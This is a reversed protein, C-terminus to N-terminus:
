AWRTASLRAAADQKFVAVAIRRVPSRPLAWTLRRKVSQRSARLFCFCISPLLECACGSRLLRGCLSLRSTRRTENKKFQLTPVPSATGETGKPILYELGSSRRVTIADMQTWMKKKEEERPRGDRTAEWWRRREPLPGFHKLREWWPYLCEPADERWTMLGWPHSLVQLRLKECQPQTLTCYHLFLKASHNADGSTLWARCRSVAKGNPGPHDRYVLVRLLFTFESSLACRISTGAKKKNLIACQQLLSFLVYIDVITLNKHTMAAYILGM